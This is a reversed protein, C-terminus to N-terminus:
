EVKKPLGMYTIRYLCSGVNVENLPPKWSSGELVLAGLLSEQAASHILAGVESLVNETSVLYIKNSLYPEFWKIRRTIDQWFPIVRVM